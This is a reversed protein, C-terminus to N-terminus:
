RGDNTRSGPSNGNQEPPHAQFTKRDEPRSNLACGRRLFPAPGGPVPGRAPATDPRTGGAGYASTRETGGQPPARRKLAEGKPRCLPLRKAGNKKPQRPTREAAHTEWILGQRPATARAPSIIQSGEWARQTSHHQNGMLIQKGMWIESRKQGARPAPSKEWRSSDRHSKGQPHHASRGMRMGARWGQHSPARIPSLNGM